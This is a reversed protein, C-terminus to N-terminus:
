AKGQNLPQIAISWGHKEGRVVGALFKPTGNLSFASSPPVLGSLWGRSTSRKARVTGCLRGFPHLHACSTEALADGSPTEKRLRPDRFSLQKKEAGEVRARMSSFWGCVPLGSKVRPVKCSYCRRRVDDVMSQRMKRVLSFESPNADLPPAWLSFDLLVLTLSGESREPNRCAPDSFCSLVLSGESREPNRRRAGAESLGALRSLKIFLNAPEVSSIKWFM